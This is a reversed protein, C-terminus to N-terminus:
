NLNGRLFEVNLAHRLIDHATGRTFCSNNPAWTHGKKFRHTTTFCNIMLGSKQQDFFPIPVIPGIFEAITRMDKRANEESVLSYASRWM